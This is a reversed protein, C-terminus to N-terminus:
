RRRSRPNHLPPRSSVDLRALTLLYEARAIATELYPVAGADLERVRQRYSNWWAFADPWPYRKTSRDGECPLGVKELNQLQRGTIRLLEGLQAQTLLWIRWRSIPAAVQWGTKHAVLQAALPRAALRVPDGLDETWHVSDLPTAGDFVLGTEFETLVGCCATAPDLEAPDLELVEGRDLATRMEERTVDHRRAKARARPSRPRTTM